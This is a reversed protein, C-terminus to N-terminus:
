FKWINRWKETGGEEKLEGPSGLKWSARGFIFFIVFFKWLGVLFFIVFFKWSAGGFFFFIVFFKWSAGGFFPDGFFFSGLM